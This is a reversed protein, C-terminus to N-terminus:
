EANTRGIASRALPLPRTSTGNPSRTSLINYEPYPRHIRQYKKYASFGGRSTGTAIDSLFWLSYSSHRGRPRHFKGSKRIPFYHSTQAVQSGWPSRNEDDRQTSSEVGNRQTTILVLEHRRQRTVKGAAERRRRSKMIGRERHM